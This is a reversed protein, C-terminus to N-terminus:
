LEALMETDDEKDKDHMPASKVQAGTRCLLSHYQLLREPWTCDKKLRMEALLLAPSIYFKPFLVLRMFRVRKSGGSVTEYDLVM